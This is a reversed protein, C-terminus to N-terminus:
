LFRRTLEFKKYFNRINFRIGVLGLLLVGLPYFIFGLGNPFVAIGLSVFGLGAVVYGLPKLNTRYLKIGEQRYGLLFKKNQKTEIM